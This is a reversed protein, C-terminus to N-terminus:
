QVEKYKEILRQYKLLYERAMQYMRQNGSSIYHECDSEYREVAKFIHEIGGAVIEDVSYECGICHLEKKIHSCNYFNPCNGLYSGENSVIPTHGEIEVQFDLLIDDVDSEGQFQIKSQIEKISDPVTIEALSLMKDSQNLENSYADYIPEDYDQITHPRNNYYGYMTDETRLGAYFMVKHSVFGYDLRNTIGEHRLMHSELRLIDGSDDKLNYLDNGYDDKLMSARQILKTMQRHFDKEKFRGIVVKSYSIRELFLTNNRETKLVSFLMGPTLGKKVIDEQLSNSVEIQQNLLSILYKEAKSKGTLTIIKEIIEVESSTKPVGITIKYENSFRRIATETRMDLVENIRTPILRLLWYILRLHLPIGVEYDIMVNDLALFFEKSLEDEDQSLEAKKRRLVKYDPDEPFTIKPVEDFDEMVEFFRKFDGWSSSIISVSLGSNCLYRKYDDIMLYNIDQLNNVGHEDVVFRFFRSLNGIRARESGVKIRDRLVFYKVLDKFQEHIVYFRICYKANDSATYNINYTNVWVDDAFVGNHGFRTALSEILNRKTDQNYPEIYKVLVNEKM